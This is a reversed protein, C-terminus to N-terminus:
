RKNPKNSKSDSQSIKVPNRFAAGGKSIKKHPYKSPKKSRKMITKLYSLKDVRKSNMVSRKSQTNKQEPSVPSNPKLKKAPKETEIIPTSRILFPRPKEDPIITEISLKDLSNFETLPLNLNPLALSILKKEKKPIRSAMQSIFEKIQCKPPTNDVLNAKRSHFVFSFLQYDLEEFNINSEEMEVSYMDLGYSIEKWDVNERMSIELIGKNDAERGARGSKGDDGNQVEGKSFKMKLVEEWAISDPQTLLAQYQPNRLQSHQIEEIGLEWKGWPRENDGLSPAAEFFYHEWRNQAKEKMKKRFIQFKKFKKSIERIKTIRTSLTWTKTGSCILPLLVCLSSSPSGLEEIESLKLNSLQAEHLLLAGSTSCLFKSLYHNKPPYSEPKAQM